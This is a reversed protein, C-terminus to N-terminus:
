IPLIQLEKAKQIAQTRRKADRKLLVTSVHTKITSESVFLHEAIEKNSYGSVMELLIEYKRKSLGISELQKQDIEKQVTEEKRFRKQTVVGIAFFVIAIGSIVLEITVDGSILAYQSVQLLVLIAFALMGFILVTKKM